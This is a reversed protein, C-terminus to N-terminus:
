IEHFFLKKKIEFQSITLQNCLIGIIINLLFFVLEIVWFIYLINFFLNLM